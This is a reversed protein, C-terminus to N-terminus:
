GARSSQFIAPVATWRVRYVWHQNRRSVEEIQVPIKTTKGTAVEHLNLIAAAKQVFLPDCETMDCRIECGDASAESVWATVANRSDFLIARFAENAASQIKEQVKFAPKFPPPTPAGAAQTPLAHVSAVTQADTLEVPLPPALDLATWQTDGPKWIWRYSDIQGNQRFSAVEEATFPGSIKQSKGLFFASNKPSKM